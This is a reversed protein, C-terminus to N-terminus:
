IKFIYKLRRNLCIWRPATKGSDRRHIGPCLHIGPLSSASVAVVATAEVVLPGGLCMVWRDELDRVCLVSISGGDAFNGVTSTYPSNEQGLSQMVVVLRASATRRPRGRAPWM